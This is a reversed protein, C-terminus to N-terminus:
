YRWHPLFFGARQRYSAYSEGFERALRRDELLTAGIIWASWMIALLFRDADMMATTWVMVVQSAAIPHRIYRYLGRERFEPQRPARDQDFAKLHEIGQLFSSGVVTTSHVQAAILLLFIARFPWLMWDPSTWIPTGACRWFHATVALAVGSALVYMPRELREGFFNKLARKVPSQTWVSHQLPFILALLFDFVLAENRAPWPERAAALRPWILWLFYLPALNACIWVLALLPYLQPKKLM